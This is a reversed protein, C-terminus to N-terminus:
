DRVVGPTFELIRLYTDIWIVRQIRGYTDFGSVVSETDDCTGRIRHYLLNLRYLRVADVKNCRSTRNLDVTNVWHGPSVTCVPVPFASGARFNLQM